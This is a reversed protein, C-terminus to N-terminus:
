MDMPAANPRIPTVMAESGVALPTLRTTPETIVKRMITGMITTYV